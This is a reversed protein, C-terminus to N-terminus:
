GTIKGSAPVAFATGSSRVDKEPGTGVSNICGPGTLSTHSLSKLQVGSQWLRKSIMAGFGQGNAAVAASSQLSCNQGWRIESRVFFFYSTKKTPGKKKQWYCLLWSCDLPFKWFLSIQGSRPTLPLADALASFVREWWRGEKEGECPRCKSGLNESIFGPQEWPSPIQEWKWLKSSDCIGAATMPLLHFIEWSLTGTGKFLTERTYLLDTKNEHSGM